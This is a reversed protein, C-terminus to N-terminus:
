LNVFPAPGLSGGLQYCLHVRGDVDGYLNDMDASVEDAEYEAAEKKRHASSIPWYRRQQDSRLRVSDDSVSSITTSWHTAAAEDGEEDKRARGKWSRKKRELRRRRRVDSSTSLSYTM